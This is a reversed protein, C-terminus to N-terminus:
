LRRDRAPSRRSAVPLTAATSALPRWSSSVMSVRTVVSSPSGTQVTLPVTSDRPVAGSRSRPHAGGDVRGADPGAVGQGLDGLRDFAGVQDAVGAGRAVEVRDVPVVLDGLRDAQGAHDGVAHVRHADRRPHHGAPRAVRRRDLPQPDAERRHDLRALGEGGPALHGLDVAAPDRDAEPGLVLLAVPHEGLSHGLQLKPLSYLETVPRRDRHDLLASSPVSTSTSRSSTSAAWAPSRQASSSSTRRVWRLTYVQASRSTPLGSSAASTVWSTYRRTTRLSLPKRCSADNVVQSFRTVVFTAMLVKFRRVRRNATSPATTGTSARSGAGSGPSRASATASARRSSRSTASRGSPCRWTSTSRSM